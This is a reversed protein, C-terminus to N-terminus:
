RRAPLRAPRMLPRLHMARKATCLMMRMLMICPAPVGLHLSKWVTCRACEDMITVFTLCCAERAHGWWASARWRPMVGRRRRLLKGSLERGPEGSMAGERGASTVGGCRTSPARRWCRPGRPERCWVRGAQLRPEGGVPERRM